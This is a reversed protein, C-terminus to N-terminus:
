ALDNELVESDRDLLHVDALAISELGDLFALEVRGDEDGALGCPGERFDLGTRELEDGHRIRRRQLVIIQRGRESMVVVRIQDGLALLDLGDRRTGHKGHEVPRRVALAIPADGFEGLSEELIEVLKQLLRAM